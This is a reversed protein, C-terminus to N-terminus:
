SNWLTGTQTGTNLAVGLTANSLLDTARLQIAGETTPLFNSGFTLGTSSYTATANVNNIAYNGVLGTAASPVGAMNDGNALNTYSFGEYVLLGAHISPLVGFVMPVAAFHLFIRKM